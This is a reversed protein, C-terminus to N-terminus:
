IRSVRLGRAANTVVVLSQVVYVCSTDEVGIVFGESWYAKLMYLLDQEVSYTRRPVGSNRAVAAVEFGPKVAEFTFKLHM